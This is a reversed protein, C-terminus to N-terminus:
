PLAAFVFGQALIESVATVVQPGLVPSPGQNRAKAGEEEDVFTVPPLPEGPARAEVAPPPPPPITRVEAGPGRLELRDMVERGLREMPTSLRDYAAGDWSRTEPM